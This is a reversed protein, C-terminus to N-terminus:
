TKALSSTEHQCDFRDAVFYYRSDLVIARRNYWFISLFKTIHRNKHFSTKRKSKNAILFTDKKYFLVNEFNKDFQLYFGYIIKLFFVSYFLYILRLVHVWRAFRTPNIHRSFCTHLLRIGGITDRSTGITMATNRRVSADVASLGITNNPQM